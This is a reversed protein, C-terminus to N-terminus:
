LKLQAKQAAALYQRSCLLDLSLSPSAYELVNYDATISVGTGRNAETDVAITACDASSGCFFLAFGHPHDGTRIECHKSNKPAVVSFGYDTNTLREGDALHEAARVYPSIGWFLM